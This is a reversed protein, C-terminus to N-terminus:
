CLIAIWPKCGYRTVHVKRCLLPLLFIKYLFLFTPPRLLCCGHSTMPQTGASFSSPDTKKRDAWSSDWPTLIEGEPRRGRCLQPKQRNNKLSFICLLSILIPPFHSLHICPPSQLSSKLSILRIKEQKLNDFQENGKAVSEKLSAIKLECNWKSAEAYCDLFATWQAQLIQNGEKELHRVFSFMAWILHGQSHVGFAQTLRPSM